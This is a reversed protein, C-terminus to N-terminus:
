VYTKFVLDWLRLKIRNYNRENFRTKVGNM